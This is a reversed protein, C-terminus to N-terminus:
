FIMQLSPFCEGEHPASDIWIDSLMDSAKACPLSSERISHMRPLTFIADDLVNLLNEKAEQLTICNVDAFDDPNDEKACDDFKRDM